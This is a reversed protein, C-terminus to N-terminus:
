ENTLSPARHCSGLWADVEDERWAVTNAGLKVRQPFKGRRELRNLYSRSFPIGKCRYLDEFRLMRMADGIIQLM